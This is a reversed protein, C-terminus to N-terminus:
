GAAAAPCRSRARSGAPRASPAGPGACRGARRGSLVRRRLLWGLGFLWVPLPTGLSVPEADDAALRQGPNLGGPSALDALMWAFDAGRSGQGTRQLSAGAPTAPSEAVGVDVSTLGAAAGYLATLVGEYSLFERVLQQADVLAIGDPAGNQLGNSALALLHFGFGSGTDDGLVGSLGHSAYVSGSSGNYFLLRWGNLDSGAAGALEVFEGTDSGANDYHFENIFVQEGIPAAAAPPMAFAFPCLLCLGLPGPISSM